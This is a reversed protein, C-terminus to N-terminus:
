LPRIAASVQYSRASQREIPIVRILPPAPDYEIGLQITQATTEGALEAAVTLGFDIGSTVGGATIVNGDSTGAAFLEV